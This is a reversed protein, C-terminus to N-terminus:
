RKSIFNQFVGNLDGNLCFYNYAAKIPVATTAYSYQVMTCDNPCQCEDLNIARTMAPGFCDLALDNTCLNASESYAPYDWPICDCTEMAIRLQCEFYCASQSYAEFVKLGDSESRSLCNRREPSLNLASDDTEVASPVVSIDYLFGPLLRIVESRMNPVTSPNHVALQTGNIGLM